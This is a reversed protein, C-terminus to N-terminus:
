YEPQLSFDIEQIRTLWHIKEADFSIFAEQAKLKIRATPFTDNEFDSLGKLTNTELEKFTLWFAKEYDQQYVSRSMYREEIPLVENLAFWLEQNCENQHLCGPRKSLREHDSRDMWDPRQQFVGLIHGHVEMRTCLDEFADLLHSLSSRAKLVDLRQRPTQGYEIEFKTTSLGVNSLHLYIKSQNGSKVVLGRKELAKLSKSISFRDSRITTDAMFRKASWLIPGTSQHQFIWVLIQRQLKSLQADARAEGRRNRITRSPIIVTM